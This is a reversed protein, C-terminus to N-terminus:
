RQLPFLQLALQYVERRSGSELHDNLQELFKVILDQAGALRDPDITM